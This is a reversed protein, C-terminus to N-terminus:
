IMLNRFQEAYNKTYFIRKKTNLGHFIKYNQGAKVHKLM